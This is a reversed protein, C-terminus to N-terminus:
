GSLGALEPAPVLDADASLDVGVSDARLIGLRRMLRIYNARTCGELEAAAHVTRALRLQRLLCDRQAADKARQSPAPVPEAGRPLDGVEILLREGARQAARDLVAQLEALNGRWHRAQLARM